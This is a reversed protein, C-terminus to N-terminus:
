GRNGQQCSFQFIIELTIKYNFPRNFALRQEGLGLSLDRAPNVAAISKHRAMCYFISNWLLILSRYFHLTRILGALDLTGPSM